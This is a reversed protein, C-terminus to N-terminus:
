LTSVKRVSERVMDDLSEDSLIARKSIGRENCFRRVSRESLGKQNPYSSKLIESIQCHSKKKNQSYLTNLMSKAFTTWPHLFRTVYLFLCLTGKVSQYMYDKLLNQTERWFCGSSYQERHRPLWLRVGKGWWFFHLSLQGKYYLWDCAHLGLM